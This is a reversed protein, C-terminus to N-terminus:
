HAINKLRLKQKKEDFQNRGKQIWERHNNTPQM